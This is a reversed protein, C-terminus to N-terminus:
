GGLAKVLTVAAVLQQGCRQTTSFEVNLVTSEAAAVELYIRRRSVYGRGDHGPRKFNHQYSIIGLLRRGARRDASHSDHISGALESFKRRAASLDTGGDDGSRCQPWCLQLAADTARMRTSSPM